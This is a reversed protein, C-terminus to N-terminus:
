YLLYFFFYQFSCWLYNLIIFQLVTSDSVEEVNQKRYESDIIDTLTSSIIFNWFIWLFAVWNSSAEDWRCLLFQKSKGEKIHWLSRIKSLYLSDNANQDNGSLIEKNHYKRVDAATYKILRYSRKAEM